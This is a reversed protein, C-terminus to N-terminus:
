RFWVNQYKYAFKGFMEEYLYKFGNIVVLVCKYILNNISWHDPLLSIEGHLTLPKFKLQLLSTNKFCSSVTGKGSFGTLVWLDNYFYPWITFFRYLGYWFSLSICTKKINMLWYPEYAIKSVISLVIEIFSIDQIPRWVVFSTSIQCEINNHKVSHIPLLHPQHQPICSALLLKIGDGLGVVSTFVLDSYECLLYVSFWQVWLTAM